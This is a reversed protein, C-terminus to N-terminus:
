KFKPLDVITPSCHGEEGVYSKTLFETKELCGSFGKDSIGRGALQGTGNAL